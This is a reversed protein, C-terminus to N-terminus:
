RGLLLVKGAARFERRIAARLLLLV